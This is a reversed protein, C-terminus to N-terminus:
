NETPNKVNRDKDNEENSYLLEGRESYLEITSQGDNEEIPMYEEVEILSEIESPDLYNILDNPSDGARIMAQTEDIQSDEIHIRVWSTVKYDIYAM